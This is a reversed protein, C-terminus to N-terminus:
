VIDGLLKFFNKSFSKEFGDSNALVNNNLSLLNKLLLNFLDSDTEQGIIFKNFLNVIDYAAKLKDLNQRIGFFHNLIEAGTIIKFNRGQVYSIRVYNFLEIHPAVKALIKRSGRILFDSLGLEKTYIFVVRDYENYDNKKIVIGELRDM